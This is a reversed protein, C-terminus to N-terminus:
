LGFMRATFHKNSLSVSFQHFVSLCIFCMFQSLREKHTSFSSLFSFVVFFLFFTVDSRCLGSANVRTTTLATRSRSFLEPFSSVFNTELKLGM